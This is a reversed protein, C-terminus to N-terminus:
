AAPPPTQDPKAEERPEAHVLVRELSPFAEQLATEM